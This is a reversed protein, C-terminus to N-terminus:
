AETCICLSFKHYDDQTDTHQDVVANQSFTTKEFHKRSNQIMSKALLTQEFTTAFISRKQQAPVTSWVIVLPGTQNVPHSLRRSFFHLCRAGDNQKKPIASRITKRAFVMTSTYFSGSSKTLESKYLPVLRQEM